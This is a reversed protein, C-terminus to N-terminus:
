YRYYQRVVAMVDNSRKNKFVWCVGFKKAFYLDSNSGDANHLINLNPLMLISTTPELYAVFM